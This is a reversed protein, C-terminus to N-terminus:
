PLDAAAADAADGKRRRLARKAEAPTVGGFAFLLVPYLAAGVVCVLLITIEKAGLLGAARRAAGRDRRPLARGRALRRGAAVSALRSASSRARAAGVPTLRRAPEPSVVM